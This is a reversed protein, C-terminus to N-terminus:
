EVFLARILESIGTGKEASFPIFAKVPFELSKAIQSLRHGRQAGSIKDIKNAILVIEKERAHLSYLMELDDKTPGVNADIILAVRKQEYESNFFYWCILDELGERVQKPAKAYGYGPLDVLYFSGNILFLNIEKTCGPFSSSRALDKKGTLTNIVSSKGVNSRGIFAIQPIGNSLLKDPGVISKIFTASNIRM